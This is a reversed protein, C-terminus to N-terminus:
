GRLLEKEQSITFFQLRIIANPHEELEFELGQWFIRGSLKELLEVYKLLALYSGSLTLNLGHRYLPEPDDADTLLHPSLNSLEILTLNNSQELISLLLTSMQTPSVLTRMRSDVQQNFDSLRSELRVRRENQEREERSLLAISNNLELVQQQQEEIKTLQSQHKSTLDELAAGLTSEYLLLGMYAVLTWIVVLILWRERNSRALFSNELTSWQEKLQTM